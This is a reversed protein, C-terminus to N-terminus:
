AVEMNAKSLRTERNTLGREDITFDGPQNYSKTPLNKFHSVSIRKQESLGARKRISNTEEFEEVANRCLVLLQNELVMQLYKIAEKTIVGNETTESFITKIGKSSILAKNNM